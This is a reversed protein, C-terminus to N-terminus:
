PKPHLTYPKTYPKPNLNCSNKFMLNCNLTKLEFSLVCSQGNNTTCLVCEIVYGWDLEFWLSLSLSLSLTPSLSLSLSLCFQMGPATKVKVNRNLMNILGNDTYLRVDKRTLDEM